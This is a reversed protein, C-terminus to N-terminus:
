LAGSTETFVWCCGKGKVEWAEWFAWRDAEDLILWRIQRFHINKTSKIHDVLRGPTSILINIGKRLRNLLICWLLFYIQCLRMLPLCLSLTLSSLKRALAVTSWDSDHCVRCCPSVFICKPKLKERYNGKRASFLQLHQFEILITFGNLRLHIKVIYGIGKIQHKRSCELNDCRKHWPIGKCSHTM